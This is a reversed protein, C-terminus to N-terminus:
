SFCTFTGVYRVGSIRAQGIAVSELCEKVHDEQSARDSIEDLHLGCVPCDLMISADSNRRRVTTQSHSSANSELHTGRVLGYCSDCVRHLKSIPRSHRDELSQEDDSVYPIM